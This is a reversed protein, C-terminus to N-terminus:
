NSVPSGPPSLVDSQGIANVFLPANAVASKLTADNSSSSGLSNQCDSDTITQLSQALRGISAAANQPHENAPAKCEIRSLLPPPTIESLSTDGHVLSRYLERLIFTPHQDLMSIM